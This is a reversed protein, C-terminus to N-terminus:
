YVQNHSGIDTFVYSDDLEEYIIRIDGGASFSRLGFMSGKLPHDNIPNGREGSAFLEIAKKIRKQSSAQNGFRKKYRKKFSNTYIIPKM